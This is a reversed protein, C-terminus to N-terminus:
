RTEKEKGQRDHVAWKRVKRSGRRVVGVWGPPSRPGKGWDDLEGGGPLPGRHHRGDRQVRHVEAILEGGCREAAREGQLVLAAPLGGSRGATSFNTTTTSMGRLRNPVHYQGLLFFFFFFQLINLGGTNQKCTEKKKHQEALTRKKKKKM